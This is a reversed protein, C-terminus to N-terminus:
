GGRRSSAATLVLTVTGNPAEYAVRAADAADVAVTIAEESVAVVLADAALRTTGHVDVRDGVEVPLPAMGIPVAVGRTGAPLLAAVPSLGAPALRAALVIEGAGIWSTVVEGDPPSTVAGAPVLAAPVSRLEGRLEDGPELDATAVLVELREGWRDREVAAADAVRSVASVTLSTLALAALWFPLPRRPRLRLRRRARAAPRPIM